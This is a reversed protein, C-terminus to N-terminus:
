MTIFPFEPIELLLPVERHIKKWITSKAFNQWLMNVTVFTTLKIQSIVTALKDRQADVMTYLVTSAFCCTTLTLRHLQSTVLSILNHFLLHPLHLQFSDLSFSPSLYESQRAEAM